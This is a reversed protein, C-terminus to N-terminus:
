KPAKSQLDALAREVEERELPHNCPQDPPHNHSIALATPAAVAPEDAALAAPAAAAQAAGPKAGRAPPPSPPAGASPPPPVYPMAAGGMVPPIDQKRRIIIPLNAADATGNTKKCGEVLPMTLAGASVVLAVPVVETRFRM